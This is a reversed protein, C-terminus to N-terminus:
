RVKRYEPPPAIASRRPAITTVAEVLAKQTSDPQRWLVDFPPDDRQRTVAIVEAPCGNVNDFGTHDPSAEGAEHHCGQQTARVQLLDQVAENNGVMFAM